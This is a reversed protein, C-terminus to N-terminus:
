YNIILEFGFITKVICNSDARNKEYIDSNQFLVDKGLYSSKITETQVNEVFDENIDNKQVSDIKNSIKEKNHIINYNCFHVDKVNKELVEFLIDDFKTLLGRQGADEILSRWYFHGSLTKANGLIIMSSRARTLSVNMRRIDSLFGIGKFVVNKINGSSRVCSLIIIDKEQGQFGDITNFDINGLIFDGYKEIFLEKIKSLQQKYPTIIGFYGCFNISPFSQIIVDYILLAARAEMLNFPSCSTEDEYGHIDFFRYPGFLDIQHWPRKTKEEMNEDNILKNSYFFKSPFQSIHPHMRYQISLMHISSPCNKQMRVFLSQEYSYNTALQSFVTPPLQNPDGVLICLKCGYRLPIITSLEICQAAEDIIVTSFDFSLNGFFEYGSASLTTCIVDSKTLIDVQIKHRSIDLSRSTNNQQDRLEDLQQGLNNKQLNLSKLEVEISGREQESSQNELQKRLIDRQKLIENLQERLVIQNTSQHDYEIKVNSKVLETEVLSDLSVDKVNIAVNSGVRVVKPYYIVGEPNRFGQKLRLVIQDIAANSPACVLIKSSISNDKEDGGFCTSKNKSKSLFANIM